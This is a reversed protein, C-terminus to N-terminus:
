HQIWKNVISDLVKDRGGFLGVIGAFIYIYVYVNAYVMCLTQMRDLEINQTQVDWICSILMNMFTMSM